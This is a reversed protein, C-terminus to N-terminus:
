CKNGTKRTENNRAKRLNPKNSSNAKPNSNLLQHLSPQFLERKVKPQQPLKRLPKRRLCQQLVTKMQHHLWLLLNSRKKKNKSLMKNIRFSPLYITKSNCMRKMLCELFIRASKLMTCWSMIASKKSSVRWCSKLSRLSKLQGTILFQSWTNFLSTLIGQGRWQSLFM